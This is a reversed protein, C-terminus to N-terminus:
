PKRGHAQWYEQCTALLTGYDIKLGQATIALGDAGLARNPGRSWAAIMTLGLAKEVAPDVAVVMVKQGAFEWTGISQVARWPIVGAAVRVDRVGEPSITVVPGRTKVLRWAIVLTCLSFFVAGVYGAILAVAKPLVDDEIWQFAVAASLLTMLVGAALLLMLKAPSGAIELTGTTDTPM